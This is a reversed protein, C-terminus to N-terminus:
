SRGAEGVEGEVWRLYPPHGDIIPFALFEPVEYPHLETVLKKLRDLVMTTTKFIVLAEPDQHVEEDWRYVSTLGPVVNGCAALRAEVASRALRIGMDEDPVTVLVVCVAETGRLGPAGAGGEDEM